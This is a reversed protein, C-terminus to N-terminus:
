AEMIGKAEPYWSNARPIVNSIGAKKPVNVVVDLDGLPLVPQKGLGEPFDRVQM